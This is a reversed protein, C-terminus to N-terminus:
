TKTIVTTSFFQFSFSTDNEITHRLLFIETVISRVNVKTKKYSRIHIKLRNTYGAIISSKMFYSFHKKLRKELLMRIKCVVYNLVITSVRGYSHLHIITDDSARFYSTMLSCGKQSTMLFCSKTVDNIFLRKTVDNFFM